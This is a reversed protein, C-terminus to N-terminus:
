KGTPVRPGPSSGGQSPLRCLGFLAFATVRAGLFPISKYSAFHDAMLDGSSYM